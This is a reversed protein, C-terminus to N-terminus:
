TYEAPASFLGSGADLFITEGFARLMYCSTSGGFTLSDRRRIPSSGRAGLVTLTIDSTSTTASAKETTDISASEAEDALGPFGPFAACIGIGAAGTAIGQIFQRRTIEKM